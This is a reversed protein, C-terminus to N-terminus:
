WVLNPQLGVLQKSSVVSNIMNQDYLVESHGQCQVCHVMKEAHCKPKHHQMIMGPKAVFHLTTWFINDPCVNVLMKLKQQSKVKLATIWNGGLVSQSIINYWWVLKPQLPVLLKSSITFITMNQNYLDESHGQCQVCHVLKEAHCEPKHHQMIMGPQYCSTRHNLLYTESLCESVNQVKATVKVKVKLTTIGNKKKRCSVGAESPTSDFWTQNCVSWCNLVYLLFLWINIIYARAAVKVNFITFWSKQM